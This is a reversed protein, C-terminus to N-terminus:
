AQGGRLEAFRMGDFFFAEIQDLSDQDPNKPCLIAPGRRLVAGVLESDASPEHLLVVKARQVHDGSILGLTQTRNKEPLKEWSVADIFIIKPSLNAFQAWQQLPVVVPNLRRKICWHIWIQLAPDDGELGAFVVQNGSVREVPNVGGMGDQTGEAGPFEPEDKKDGDRKEPSALGRMLIQEIDVLSYRIRGGIKISPILGHKTHFYVTPKPMRLYESVEGATM